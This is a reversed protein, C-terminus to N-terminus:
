YHNHVRATPKLRVQTIHAPHMAFSQIFALLDGDTKSIVWTSRRSVPGLTPPSSHHLLLGDQNRFIPRNSQVPGACRIVTYNPQPM